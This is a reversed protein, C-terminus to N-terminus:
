LAESDEERDARKMLRQFSEQLASTFQPKVQHLTKGTVAEMHSLNQLEEKWSFAGYITEESRCLTM